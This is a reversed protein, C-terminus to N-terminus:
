AGLKKGSSQASSAVTKSAKKAASETNGQDQTGESKKKSSPSGGLTQKLADSM